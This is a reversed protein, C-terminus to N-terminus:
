GVPRGVPWTQNIVAEPWTEPLWNVEEKQLENDWDTYCVESIESYHPLEFSSPGCSRLLLPCALFSSCRPLQALPRDM